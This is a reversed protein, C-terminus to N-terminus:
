KTIWIETNMVQNLDFVEIHRPNYELILYHNKIKLNDESKIIIEKGELRITIDKDQKRSEIIVNELPHKKKLNLFNM